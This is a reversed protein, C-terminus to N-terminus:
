ARQAEQAAAVDARWVAIMDPHVCGDFATECSPCIGQGRPHRRGAPTQFTADDEGVYRLANGSWGCGCNYFGKLM